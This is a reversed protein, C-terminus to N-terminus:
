QSSNASLYSDSICLFANNGCLFKLFAGEGSRVGVPSPSVRGGIRFNQIRWQCVIFKVLIYSICTFPRIFIVILSLGTDTLFIFLFDFRWTLCILSTCVTHCLVSCRQWSCHCVFRAHSPSVRLLPYIVTLLWPLSSFVAPCPLWLSCLRHFTAVRPRHMIHIHIIM